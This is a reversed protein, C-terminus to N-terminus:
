LMDPWRRAGHIVALIEVRAPTVRYAVIFPTAAVVLERTGEIRGARGLQPHRALLAVSERIQVILGSAASANSEAAHEYANELDGLALQTWRM